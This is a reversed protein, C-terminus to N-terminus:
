TYHDEVPEIRETPENVVQEQTGQMCSTLTMGLVIFVAIKFRKM